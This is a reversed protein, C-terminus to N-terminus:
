VVGRTRLSLFGADGMSLYQSLTTGASIVDGTNNGDHGSQSFYWNTSDANQNSWGHKALIENLDFTVGLDNNDTIASGDERAASWHSGAFLFSDLANEGITVRALSGLIGTTGYGNEVLTSRPNNSVLLSHQGQNVISSLAGSNALIANKYGSNTDQTPSNIQYIAAGSGQQFVGHNGAIQYSANGSGGLVVAGNSSQLSAYYATGSGLSTINYSGGDIIHADGWGFNFFNNNSDASTTLNATRSTGTADFLSNQVNNFQINAENNNDVLYLSLNNSNNFSINQSADNINIRTGSAAYVKHETGYGGDTSGLIVNVSGTVEGIFGMDRNQMNQASVVINGSGDNARYITGHNSGTYGGVAGIPYTM